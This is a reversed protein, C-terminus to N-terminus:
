IHILSLVDVGSFQCDRWRQSAAKILAGGGVGIDIGTKPEKYSFMSVLLNSFIDQTYYRGLTDM